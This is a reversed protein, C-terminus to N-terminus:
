AELMRSLPANSRLFGPCKKEAEQLIEAAEAKKDNGVLMLFLDHYPDMYSGTTMAASKKLYTIGKETEGLKCLCLGMGKNAYISDSNMALVKENAERSCTYNGLMFSAYGYYDLAAENDPEFELAKELVLQALQLEGEEAFKKGIRSLESVEHVNELRELTKKMAVNYSCYANESYMDNNMTLRTNPCGGLCTDGYTCKQCLGGLKEKKMSRNWNFCSENEWIERLPTKRINGEIFQRDRISTCGLIDRILYKLTKM